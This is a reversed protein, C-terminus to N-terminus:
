NIRYSYKLTNARGAENRTIEWTDGPNLNLSGMLTIGGNIHENATWSKVEVGNVKIAGFAGFSAIPTAEFDFTIEVPRTTSPSAHVEGFNASVRAAYAAERKPEGAVIYYRVGDCYILVHQGSSIKFHTVEGLFDGIIKSGAPAVVEQDGSSFNFAEYIGEGLLPLTTVGPTPFIISREGFKGAFTGVRLRQSLVWQSNINTRRDEYTFVSSSAAAPPVLVYYLILFNKPLVAKGKPDALTAGATPTGTLILPEAGDSIDGGDTSDNIKVGIQDIRPNSANPNTHAVVVPGTNQVLYIGQQPQFNGEVACRGSAITSTFGTGASCFLDGVTLVGPNMIASLTQRDNMATYGLKEVWLPALFTM